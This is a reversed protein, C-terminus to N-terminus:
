GRRCKHVLGDEVNKVPEAPPLIKDEFREVAYELKKKLWWAHHRAPHLFIGKAPDSPNECGVSLRELEKKAAALEPVLRSLAIKLSIAYDDPNFGDVTKMLKM